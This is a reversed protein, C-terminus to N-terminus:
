SQAYTVSIAAGWPDGSLPVLPNPVYVTLTALATTDAFAGTGISTVPNGTSGLVIIGTTACGSFSSDGVTDIKPLTVNGLSACASFANNALTTLNPLSLAGTQNECGAFASEGISTITNPLSEFPINSQAFSKFGVTELNDPLTWTEASVYSLMNKPVITVGALTLAVPNGTGDLADWSIGSGNGGAYTGEVGLIAVGDKINGAVLDPESKLLLADAIRTGNIVLM